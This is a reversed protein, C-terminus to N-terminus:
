GLGHRKLLATLTSRADAVGCIEPMAQPDTM